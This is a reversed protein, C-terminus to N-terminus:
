GGVATYFTGIFGILGITINQNLNLILSLATAPGYTFISASIFNRLLYCLMGVVRVNKSKYRVEIYEFVSQCGQRIFFPGTVFAGIIPTTACGLAAIWYQISSILQILKFYTILNNLALCIYTM